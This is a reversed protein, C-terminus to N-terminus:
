FISIQSFFTFTFKTFGEFIGKNLVLQTPQCSTGLSCSTKSFARSRFSQSNLCIGLLQLGLSPSARGNISLCLSSMTFSIHPILIATLFCFLSQRGCLPVVFRHFYPAAKESSLHKLSVFM